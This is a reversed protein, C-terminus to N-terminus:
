KSMNDDYHLVVIALHIICTKDNVSLASKHAYTPKCDYELHVEASSEIKHIKHKQYLSFM